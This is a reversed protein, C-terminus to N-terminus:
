SIALQRNLIMKPRIKASTDLYRTCLFDYLYFGSLQLNSTATTDFLGAPFFFFTLLFFVLYLSLLSLNIEWKELNETRRQM